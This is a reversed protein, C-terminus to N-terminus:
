GKGDSAVPRTHRHRARFRRMKTLSGCDRMDCWRRTGNKSADLFLWGCPENACERVRGIRDDSTLLDAAAWAAIRRIRDLDGAPRDFRRVFRPPTGGGSGGGPVAAPALRPRADAVHRDLRALADAGPLRGAAIPAFVAFVAERLDLARAHARAAAAPDARAAERLTAAGAADLLGAHEAWDVLDGYGDALHDRPSAGHRDSVTNALDLAPNGGALNLTAIHPQM